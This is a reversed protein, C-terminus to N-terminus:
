SGAKKPDGPPPAAPLTTLKQPTVRRGPAAKQLGKIVVWETGTLGEEIVRLNDVQIGTRIGRRNVAQEENVVLVYSGRQDTGVAEQPVLLAAKEKIPIKVRAFLGPLIKGQLNSFIGRMLLTGSTPTLSIAAFDLTGKHPFEKENPLGVHVPLTRALAQGPTWHSEGTLRALDLDSITFYVYIPDIQSLQALVTPQNSGVLNGPDVLRRDIRGGMPARVETYDLNLKALDRQARAALLNAQAADRQNRWNDVDTQSAASDRLLNSNRDLQSQAYELQAKQLLIAAEAQRLNEQYTNQQILFLLDGKNVTQGDRFFVKELYGAVRAVLQVTNVAQTNGTLELSDIVTRKVPQAVTVAPPPPPGQKPKEQCGSLFILFLAVLFSFISYRINFTSNRLFFSIFGKM